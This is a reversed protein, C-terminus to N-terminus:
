IRQGRDLAARWTRDACRTLNRSSPGALPCLLQAACLHSGFVETMQLATLLAGPTLM